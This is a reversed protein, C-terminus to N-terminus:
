PTKFSKVKVTQIPKERLPLHPNCVTGKRHGQVLYLHGEGNKRPKKAIVEMGVELNAKLVWKKAPCAAREYQFSQKRGGSQSNARMPNIQQLTETEVFLTKSYIPQRKRRKAERRQVRTPRNTQTVVTKPNQLCTLLNLHTLLHTNGNSGEGSKDIPTTKNFCM